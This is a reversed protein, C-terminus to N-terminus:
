DTDIQLPETICLIAIGGAEPEIKLVPCVGKGRLPVQLFFARGAKFFANSEQPCGSINVMYLGYLIAWKYLWIYGYIVFICQSLIAWFHTVETFDLPEDVSKRNLHGSGKFWWLQFFECPYKKLSSVCVCVGIIYMSIM